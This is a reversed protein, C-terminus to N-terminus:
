CINTWHKTGFVSEARCIRLHFPTDRMRMTPATLLSIAVFLLLHWSPFLYSSLNLFVLPSKRCTPALLFERLLPLKPQAWGWSSVCGLKPPPLLSMGRLPRLWWPSQLCTLSRRESCGLSRWCPPAHHHPLLPVPRPQLSPPPGEAPGRPGHPFRSKKKTHPWAYHKYYRKVLPGTGSTFYVWFDTCLKTKLIFVYSPGNLSLEPFQCCWTALDLWFFHDPNLHGNDWNAWFDWNVGVNGWEVSDYHLSTKSWKQRKFLIQWAFNCFQYDYSAFFVSDLFINPNLYKNVKKISFCLTLISVGKWKTRLKARIM